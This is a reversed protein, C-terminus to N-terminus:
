ERLKLYFAGSIDVTLTPSGPMDYVVEAGGFFLGTFRDGELSGVAESYTTMQADVTAIGQEQTFLNFQPQGRRISYMNTSEFINPHDRSTSLDADSSYYTAEGAGIARSAQQHLRHLFGQKARVAIQNELRWVFGSDMPMRVGVMRSLQEAIAPLSGSTKTYEIEGAVIQLTSGWGPALPRATDVHQTMLSRRFSAPALINSIVQLKDDLQEYRLDVLPAAGPGDVTKFIFLRRGNSLVFYGAAVEPLFAYSFAQEIDADSIDDSPPKAEVIWRDLGRIELIYDPRGKIEPDNPKRRGLSRRPYRLSRERVINFETGSRYGLHRLLPDIVEGRIDAENLEDFNVPPFLM